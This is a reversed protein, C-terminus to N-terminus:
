KGPMGGTVAQEKDGFACLTGGYTENRDKKM